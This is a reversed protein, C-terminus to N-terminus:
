MHKIYKRQDETMEVFFNTEIKDPLQSLVEKKLRRLM